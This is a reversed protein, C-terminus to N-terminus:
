GRRKGRPRRGQAHDIIARLRVAETETRNPDALKTRAADPIRPAPDSVSARRMVTLFLRRALVAPSPPLDATGVTVLTRALDYAPDGAAANTWDIVVPGDATIIVNLPHLDLHVVADGDRDAFHRPPPLWDPAPVAGLRDHLRALEGAYRGLRWPQKQWAELLTPGHLRDMVLDTGTAEHVRPVPYGHTALYDMVRAELQTASHSPDRYRRLVRTDDLAYVDADRGRALLPLGETDISM